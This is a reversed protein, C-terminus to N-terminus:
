VFCFPSGLPEDRKLGKKKRCMKLDGGRKEHRLPYVPPNGSNRLFTDAVM